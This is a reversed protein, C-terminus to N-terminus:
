RRITIHGKKPGTQNRLDIIYFYTGDPLDSDAFSFRANFKRGSFAKDGNNYGNIEYVLAGYRNFVRVINDPNKEIGGIYWTDNIGDGNPSFGTNVLLDLGDDTITATGTNLAPDTSITGATTATLMVEITEDGELDTDDTVPVSITATSSGDAIVVTTTTNDYDTGGTATGGVFGYTVTIASGTNNTESLTVTFTAPTGPEAGDTVPAISLIATDNDTITATGTNQAPDTSITGATTATLMVEITEDGELDTDDTVPVSITATSMGAPIEVTTTTNDYDAGGTATGGFQYTVTIASGTPNIESLIVTFEADVPGQEAGDTAPAISLTAADDDTITATGTNQAPDTSITGATTATLMVEITEDGELDTDDTVPVSITATSMGAPIEVTTTTNDYDTGGTATGGFQYTVTIASGTNNTESLTVTFTAAVPGQEAGDTSGTISLSATDDDTITATGTNQAPDVTVATGATTSQLTVEITEDGELDQDDTVPVTITATSSGDAIVVTTTTNDYDTGGTATGGVFGYTVTIASGTNNISSLTVTFTAPTGPEAGDTAPAISLTAADDDTITATGTNQAPDVTVATGATTATLMVEITEDGELDTDDNVPVSITATSMGAPITVTTATNDYDTGGTATGGFQYTVDIASGTNNPSSLTVTFTAPTGPEAGDTVPAISLTATDNDTITATGTNQAPDTSITGATTATLMVEITEDGELDQDDTVPVSITATSMGAPITVTTATNDYDTGGTATGGVFGYTVTIASGTNNPSSLEVTFEADVPGQEAGDTSGTISLTATENDTITATGTNQAPDVTVATGATTSQLTVEITEDGELDTDDNVPVTITATSSGIAIEATTTTNEYDGTGGAGGIATGGVFGYTVTIASGTNNISSLTVTFTAPTGPEAGDTAPAISLTATDNDTITATGTNQAPDVTVATGATTSQLTVEITEDGELDQDDNVPVSITATSSGIAIEATTTTNDYDGTGGVGGTATGGFQYTVDIASGTNNISSLTVTFTAAVPGQEAGDTSGTISLTATDNDTITATGTNQAPDVTVATGATTSQLTVEITEDGELDQDDTVPVTITATSSGDAIVVTTTTNDYDTGGTATGGVFGYTVTIASGTNNPSSLEVTFEADVPGQEAGDTAPAISLTAADDDTITATGTNQAPDVTVATGATTSQLTVEITEDGELDTDDTVPVSITATSSGIAIEATITTNDYDGTGGAGGTATGGVFGYTVDIASGTNNISSLTVTFTAAVPGQEAGDTSGTISLSATDDDTITATGTNQTPDTPITGATTATLMVEITEDGELDTDDNVPVSITATSSGIAIEATITTNDYDGTGGAGGTATGGVFGYTVDIASGTNNISSLTVTFTAAVPGQEAGDTSGTISLSATDDDTITATGTNQTPDTPITGATTATLMVEITEDGELDTDDNVPVSITATSSGIAIEATITTNDYDGTGGAGGTATGGVFGYTVDIASGTNNISSLTVTFTAAVPGQEAGDTSGTISLSATDDDTITATGTNQTPDTPITGATTATLMVEITEDGELDTDDNVPVSITATSSGIAIEATITTNDYDGTGGAGGTATGGVFGYTVDIASGTNNISSLTVTFTAAVPGQEAGDTSGTISLSATDDDTITATGTNQTPDTPITGATTATLMVEITEDGELDTDDNVPVSITATSSGIAIEATITTNDYDGTGGAGGTATGGVFGYTVDIASGTNNISSLTVTFTAAVPGQEAGDTSGTISLSATDDDTITATGTNQTPDTPITGATTATLMVEITEDGELDTDDNVPVSITATSSGIAIEATITTNDYDGTGGAGGTATGGVFGYTVDIASGTNNISSLTVTFTAAVPGQEAGDTSGTISLSATDDDTITATGTNQTPDTPITGATTATLMVEITEDGELDTDDNVPVSITATSSGIAIEATITTNDYDGTGGAGGTATGGVFGYTVDIASGTNNISSLTVTFTAAVPGQEAGDTSGTISLSATDDDTITATGTNQTPDTPITGATTATLMVEITEDGELDTDDNVPVSITATSSGIAIEATITTNDYDGTGGAGGTATGGVFGYTVDIASGTNNISSLTVTFTAAVPGQEAGDTVATISLTATEDDTITATGTNQAPDVTVATGATTSQLTVEITEDGELDTDDNVPVSITATSMGAPITVTTATNDYDTGGTATGGFQYTVDIASGTNNPSSLTVTFTADVPGQEAGDTSGTISLSATDNDTITATGTNQAPDVTVATGATTATLMVEITEDGELDTDDNVPVSITATSSGIAIEATITTNDYDGTGGAGGTATGGVFGYTVDIASGTNNISSLTVTFTAAVPGQEAGDTSGTISLSATDDDTITATGTNQTPDTPITGATTATLMVEITEDGELDTDDNVPVSITATSSGIAIEATITTNDYDGTGGAGGTATGGVFGYTVDIASGTNNISSLTVTFTAAVPGQEAGDTSGTISLSATDDDTITATGTNQTPDTPITGATTATLMVEITEDGELDTDDNVPVSITATSSGIAIEATITTNDYDGTGGAGGTATGGVFGYTVDIASGTNNISSLTVTFTAAVPGQEAGDTSGTISLSATDDDTITATGTNQTPDTPITGATTATLMVEITEDGELDTDDNVPVSITATSSGIAIEATITTNDYDGTGGAGGTATGGVFGYTVDIASGTNNISSLTVTFTAAVPGQEAGDTSGTISLSATDDDTITATGTNQTPDTPITGATTATLMVEITEDGELDTDDNVPVSITATSSGIAIEATITTNDYDGTGGAGGTATGGVFGYTVDIASGTNNISSLTVTFTAAVPGQEAGDTSGTISLSATDDDTITATGTNQTPDTPITGATTATLMVEITEDGELDTDDNVPVSITATSSGIAIEATITTNDYDGTGGAGGTATGGVFGYTVDIASGTNNISSLTVTFTAAVPGQEAGDTSGTISLSATDDDTITATGTNQTPDTPITGATTATLMVEITEDGELDTDDNVPVSITATSSGIAIEATITTNDYDGTGGAGGTATGGVFGYTVDIASGTNNISSLTVTFTAAVPGQEAGDTVATISLTATEDDTITATGTNQAPDVTVATGATTSQLTVEITEDGELDTDDNVPVSITATSMGAPITVTTATNDYDTGGTATGGFQYTVDIASGTNNPSSLTVTFTADVPGQEAGDTSGTISLTATENDTITATGTNQAPDVTVATGATTATLMVEITEDGELDTDDNVPVSITATSMGAPITVTTTTNDYDTGGTATGGVFGYTVTIASGTNNPSSLTVTFTAAVPGQEAGDTAPAISLTATDDDTITATGTNQAPDVTVATGATTATLMVEITEDGELDQDDTVPVSITATSSGIAIEATTTTNEYDGTGGAGGIATGGVFGYTVTIASGTNNPSSLTVTFTAAVPGQEAGDTAPAISLTATDDDTITATGTNQAPDTSITGATTATLMVEITEDGELAINDDNVPVSITATSSGIAIEATTTTNDYDGTGGAGGTATGGSFQYTVTIASGTNNPSGFDVTFTAPTTSPTSEAGDTVATISIPSTLQHWAVASTTRSASLVDMDGDGDVDAVHVSSAGDANTTIELSTFNESGDNEYWAIRDDDASASLVDMDGDGDVDAAYVSEAGDANTTIDHTIFNESGDNEYWAIKDDNGSASLVDMDGDGDVDAAYVSEAGDANTTIDHTIFNESGDNEYWAIKDDANSASLVDMDGDGDIDATYVSRPNDAGGITIDHPTFNESGDNEYWAIRDDRTSASLVDMDGDNDVDVVYVSTAGNTLLPSATGTTIDHSTFVRGTGAVGNNEHWVIRNDARSASLVDMNGDGNVDAAYVTFPRDVDTTIVHTMFNENGDNEYWDISAFTNPPGNPDARSSASLVDMDGDNDMDAAYVSRPQEVLTTITNTQWVGTVKDGSTPGAATTFQVVQPNFLSEEVVAATLSDAVTVTIVQGPQFDRVPSFTITSTGLGTFTGMIVEQEGKIVINTSNVTTSEVTSSFNLVIDSSVPVNTANAAPSAGTLVFSPLRYWAIKNDGTSASLVDMDGDGDVDAVHVSAVGDANTTIERPTFNESGDNEYWAIKDDNGSASLVDMNGDGDVDAAYVSSAGDANTTIDHTIFNESGDNEYWAIKNDTNSASLVDMDGDGDVDAAYVSAAGDATTTIEHSTFTTRGTRRNIAKEYWVIRDDNRSASLVDMDGDGDIDATYVSEAGSADRTIETNTFNETGDNEHLIIHGNVSASLVDMDGDGDVDTAYVSEPSSIQLGSSPAATGDTIRHYLFNQSGDNEYWAIESVSLITPVSSTSLVDMDGDGDVDAAFVSHVGAAINSDVMLPTFGGSGDNEYWRIFGSRSGTPPDLFGALVDIDGDNDMDTAYVSSANTVDIAIIDERWLGGMERGNTPGAATTFLFIQSQDLSSSGSAATLGTTVTVTIVQGPQFDRTPSFTITSTGGGAFTGMIVEQEGKVVINDNNVTTVDVNLDFDLMIDSNVPINTANAAPTHSVLTLNQQSYIAGHIFLLFVALACQKFYRCVVGPKSQCTSAKKNKKYFTKSFNNLCVSLPMPHNIIELNNLCSLNLKM